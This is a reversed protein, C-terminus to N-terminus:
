SYQDKFALVPGLAAVFLVVFFVAIVAPPMVDLMEPTQTMVAAFGLLHAGISLYAGIKKRMVFLVFGIWGVTMAVLHLALKSIPMDITVEGMVMSGSILARINDFTPQALMLLLLVVVIWHIIKFKTSPPASETM